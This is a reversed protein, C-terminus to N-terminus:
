IKFLKEANKHSILEKEKETLNSSMLFNTINDPRIYPYDVAWIIHDLGMYETISKINIDSIIGSPTVYINEKYYESINKMLGTLEKTLMYDMRDLMMPIGEGLARNNDQIKTVPMSSHFYIPVDLEAAKEFFPIFQKEDLFHGDFRGM